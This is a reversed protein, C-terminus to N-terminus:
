QVTSPQCRVSASGQRQDASSPAAENGLVLPILDSMCDIVYDASSYAQKRASRRLVSRMGVRRAGVVDTKVMDGVFLCEEPEVAIQALAVLFIIPKPKRYTVESSYVRVPFFEKLGVMDLHRDLVRGPLLTNSVIGMKLGADRLKRLTPIVDGAVSSRPIIPQYWMWLLEAIFAEDTPYGQKACFQQMARVSDVERGRLTAWVYAWRGAWIHRRYYAAFSPMACGRSQLFRYTTEAVGRFLAPRDMPQFDLLTDGLDFLVAKIM